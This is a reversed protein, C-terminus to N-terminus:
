SNGGLIARFLQLQGATTADWSFREAYTRTARRYPYNMFLTEYAQVLAQSTRSEMLVGAARDRVVEPTGEAKSAIVPTGCAISELLVNAMGERSSALVLADAACYLAALEVQTKGGLFHVREAVGRTKALLRLEAEMPGQGAIALSVEPPLAALAAIAIHHGKREILHGVSLLMRGHWGFRQRMLDRDLPRFAELDVGNRLVRIRAADVGIRIVADRLAESVTIIGASRLAASRILARPMRYEPILTVDTGRATIVVPKRLWRGLLTAAVGDPYFYHADILDCDWGARQWQRIVRLSRRALFWPALTMGIKPLLLYRPHEIRVGHREEAPPVDAYRAYDGFMPARSPFWPVPALVRSEVEGTALLKRLRQEVFIGHSPRAANPYLTTFVLTRLKAM